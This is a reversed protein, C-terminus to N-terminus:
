IQDKNLHKQKGIWGLHTHEFADSYKLGYGLMRDFASHALFICGVQMLWEQQWVFGIIFLAACVGQHHLFNYAIAGAKKSILYALFSVDPVFFLALYIGWTSHWLHFYIATFLIFLSLSELKLLHKM